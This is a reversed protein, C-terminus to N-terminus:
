RLFLSSEVIMPLCVSMLKQSEAPNALETPSIPHLSSLNLDHPVHLGNSTGLDVQLSHSSSSVHVISSFYYWNAYDNNLYASANMSGSPLIHFFTSCTWKMLCPHRKWFTMKMPIQTRYLLALANWPLQLSNFNHFYSQPVMLLRTSHTIQM